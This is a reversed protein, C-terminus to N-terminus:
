KRIRTPKFPISKWNNIIEVDSIKCIISWVSADHRNERFNPFNQYKSPEDCFLLPFNKATNWWKNYINMSNKCKKVVHICGGSFQKSNYIEKKNEVNFHKFIDGKTWTSEKHPNNFAILGKKSKNVINFYFKLRNKTYNNNPITSGADCYVIIDNINVKKLMSYIIYPKWIWYGGGRKSNFVKSFDKNKLLEKIENNNSINETFFNCKSFLKTKYAEKVVRERSDKFKQNGYTIFYRNQKNEKTRDINEKSIDINKNIENIINKNEKSIDINKNIENIINKNEKTRDINKNIENIINKNEKSIDINKNIENIINKNKKWENYFYNKNTENIKYLYLYNNIFIDETINNFIDNYLENICFNSDINNFNFFIIYENIKFKKYYKLYFYPIYYEFNKEFNVILNRSKLYKNRLISNNNLKKKLFVIILYIM